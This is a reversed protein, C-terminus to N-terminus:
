YQTSRKGKGSSGSRSSGRSELSDFGFSLSTQSQASDHRKSVGFHIAASCCSCHHNLIENIFKKIHTRPAHAPPPELRTRALLKQDVESVPDRFLAQSAEDGKYKISLARGLATTIEAGALRAIEVATQEIESLLEPSVGDGTAPLDIKHAHAM